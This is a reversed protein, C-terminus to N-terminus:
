GETAPPDEPDPESQTQATAQETASEAAPEVTSESEAWLEKPEDSACEDLPTGDAAKRLLVYVQTQLSCFVSFMVAAVVGGLLATWQRVVWASAYLSGGLEDDGWHEASIVEFRTADGMDQQGASAFSGLELAGNTAQLTLGALATMLMFVVALYVVSGLLYGAYQWPKFLVYNFSRAVADFGDTGEVSLAPPMLFLAFVLLLGVLAIIFGLLLLLGYIVSGALELWALNFFALGAVFLVAVLLLILLTPMLPTLLYWAWRAGVFTGAGSLSTVEGRCVQTASMRCLIGSTMALVFLVDIGFLVTFWPAEDFLEAPFTLLSYLHDIAPRGDPATLLNLRAADDFLEVLQAGVVWLIDHYLEEGWIWDFVSGSFHILLVAILAVLLKGPQLAHRFAQGLRLIPLVRHWDVRDIAVRNPTQPM